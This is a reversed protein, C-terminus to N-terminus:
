IRLDVVRGKSPPVVRVLLWPSPRVIAWFRREVEQRTM